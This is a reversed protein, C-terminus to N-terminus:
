VGKALKKGAETLAKDLAILRTGIVQRSRDLVLVKWVNKGDRAAENPLVKRLAIREKGSKTFYTTEAFGDPFVGNARYYKMASAYEDDTTGRYVKSFPGPRRVFYGYLAGYEAGTSRNRSARKAKATNFIVVKVTDGSLALKYDISRGSEGTREIVNKYWEQQASHVLEDGISELVTVVSGASERVFKDVAKALDADIGVSATGVTVTKAAVSGGSPERRQRCM